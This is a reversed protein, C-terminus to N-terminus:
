FTSSLEWMGVVALCGLFLYDEVRLIIGVASKNNQHDISLALQSFFAYFSPLLPNVSSGTQNMPRSEFAVIKGHFNTYCIILLLDVCGVM